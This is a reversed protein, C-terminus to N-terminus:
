YSNIAVIENLTEFNTLCYCGSKPNGGNTNQIEVNKGVILNGNEKDIVFFIELGDNLIEDVEDDSLPTDNRCYDYVDNIITKEDKLQSNKIRELIGDIYGEKSYADIVERANSAELCVFGVFKTDSEKYRFIDSSCKLEIEM